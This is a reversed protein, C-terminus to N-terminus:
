KREENKCYKIIERFIQEMFVPNISSKKVNELVEREREPDGIILSKEKKIGGIRKAIRVRREILEAIQADVGDIEKRLKKIEDM